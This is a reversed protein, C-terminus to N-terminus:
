KIHEFHFITVQHYTFIMESLQMDIYTIYSMITDSQM